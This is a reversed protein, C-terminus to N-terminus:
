RLLGCSARLSGFSPACGREACFVAAAGNAVTAASSAAVNPASCGPSATGALRDRRSPLVPRPPGPFIVEFLRQDLVADIGPPGEGHAVLDLDGGLVFVELPRGDLRAVAELNAL